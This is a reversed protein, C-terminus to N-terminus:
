LGDAERGGTPGFLFLLWRLVCVLPVWSGAGCDRPTGPCPLHRRRSWYRRRTIERDTAANPSLSAQPPPHADAGNVKGITVPM